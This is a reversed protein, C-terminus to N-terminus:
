AIYGDAFVGQDGQAREGERLTTAACDLAFHM